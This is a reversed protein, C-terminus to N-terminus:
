GSNRLSSAATVFYHGYWNHIRETGMGLEEALQIRQSKNPIGHTVFYNELIAKQAASPREHPKSRNRRGTEANPDKRRKTQFRSFAVNPPTLNGFLELSVRSGVM